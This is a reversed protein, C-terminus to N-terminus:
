NEPKRSEATIWQIIDNYVFEKGLENLIEHRYEPYLITSVNQMGARIFRSSVRAVGEGANGVPDKGGSIFLVPLAKPMKALNKKKQVFSITDFLNFYGNLTFVFNNREDDLYKRVIAEDRTLWDRETAAPEFPKNMGGFSMKDILASRYHWGHFVALVRALTKGLGLVIPPQWGTGSIIAGSIEGGFACLYKRTFFSGMSHGLLFYPVDPYSEKTMVTLRHMDELVCDAGNEAAFYGWDEKSGVSAGHGLHDNGVVVYGRGALYEAFDDYRDIFEVMGHAIQLIGIPQAEPTWMIAHVLTKRDSSLFQFTKKM